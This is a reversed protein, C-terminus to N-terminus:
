AHLAAVDAEDLVAQGMALGVLTVLAAVAVYCAISFGSPDRSLLWTFVLPAVAGGIIGAITYALSSGTYRLRAHFQEAIFAAQPGYMLSHFFLGATVGIILLPLSAAATMAFFVFIWVAGGVAGVSYVLKRGWRDSLHGAFPITVLQIASAIMVATIAEGRPMKLQATAYTLVFVAFMGYLVDPGVRCLIAAVLPRRQTTLVDTVPAAPREGREEIAKFVPTEELRHRIWLGFGVLIASLFFALRWGWDLFQANTLCGALLALVGNALLTGLPPGVQAASAWFGREEPKSFESTLLVAGGWEGGVGVGQAFRLLVLMLPGFYGAQAYSPLFGILFTAVGILLLTWILVKKRGILDGLRGFVVGGLPRSVYGVAYTGFAKLTGTLTDDGPFFLQGFVLAAAVGYVAFDYWELSTGALSAIFARKLGQKRTTGDEPHVSVDM